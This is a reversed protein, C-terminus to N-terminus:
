HLASPEVLPFATVPAIFPRGSASIMEYSGEMTGVATEMITGSTYSFSKGPEILPQKGVVGEGRVESIRNRGNTIIWHRNLLRVAENGGNTITITYAFAFRNEQPLSEEALYQTAVQIDVQESERSEM